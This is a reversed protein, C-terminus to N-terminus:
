TGGIHVISLTIDEIIINSAVVRDTTIWVEITDNVAVDIIGSISISGKDTGAALTRSAHCNNFDAAKNNKSVDVDITHTAGANNIVTLSVTLLYRGAEVITIYDNTHDPTTNNSEGNTDFIVVQTYGASSVSMTTINNHAYIEGFPLGHGDGTFLLDGLIHVAGTGVLKPNIILDIGDYYINADFGAGFVIDAGIGDGAMWLGQNIVGSIQKELELGSLRGWTGTTAAATGIFLGRVINATTADVVPFGFDLHAIPQIAIGTIIDATVVRGVLNLLGATAIGTILLDASGVGSAVPAPFFDLCRIAPPTGAVTSWNTTDFWANGQLSVLVNDQSVSPAYEPFNGIGVITGSGTYVEAVIINHGATPPRNVGLHKTELNGTLPGNSADLKLYRGDALARTISNKVKSM